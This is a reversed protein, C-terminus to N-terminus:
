RRLAGAWADRHEAVYRGVSAWHEGHGGLYMSAWPEVGASHSSRLLECMARVRDAMADALAARLAASAQYGDVLAALRAASTPVSAAADNLTFSQAAYALDWLRTSPGAGDWDIFVWREGVILNWPALDGHCILDAGPSRIAQAWAPAASSRFGASADHIQRVM